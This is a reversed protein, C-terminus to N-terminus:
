HVEYLPRGETHDLSHIHKSKFGEKTCADIQKQTLIEPSWQTVLYMTQNHLHKHDQIELVDYKTYITESPTM